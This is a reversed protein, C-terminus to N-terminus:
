NNIDNYDADLFDYAIYSFWSEFESKNVKFYHPSPTWYFKRFLLFIRYRLPEIHYGGAM